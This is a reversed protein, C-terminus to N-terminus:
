FLYKKLLYENSFTSKLFIYKKFFYLNLFPVKKFIYKKLINLFIIYSGGDLTKKWCTSIEYITASAWTQNPQIYAQLLYKKFLYKKSLTSKLCPVKLFPVKKFIYKKLINLSIIYPGGDLTKKEVLVYKTFKLCKAWTHNPQIYAQLLYKWFLYKKSFTSKSFTKKLINISIIYPGCKLKKKM